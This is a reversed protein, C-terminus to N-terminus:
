RNLLMPYVSRHYMSLIRRSRSAQHDMLGFVCKLGIAAEILIALVLAQARGRHKMVFRIRSKKREVEMREAAQKTSQGGLHVVSAAHAYAIKWGAANVRYCFDVEEGYMFFAEDLLGVDQVVARRTM